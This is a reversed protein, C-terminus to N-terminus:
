KQGFKFKKSLFEIMELAKDLHAKTHLATLSIRLRSLKRPVAPYTIPNVYIGNELLIRASENVKYDDKILIPFIASQSARYDIKLQQLSKKFYAINALLHKRWDPEEDVLQIAKIISAVSQPTAAASFINQRSYYKLLTIMAKNAITYGGVNGFAKSFTGTIFDVKDLLGCDEIIGRGTKGLVGIGHADDVVLYAGHEKCVTYIDNLPAIDGDQSYVGDIVVVRNCYSKTSELVHKLSNIDNHLFHKTNCCLCGDVVSAHTYMDLIAIDKEGLLATLTSSNAAYGSTYTIAYENRLFHSIANELKEHEQNQGGILPSAGAGAGYKQLAKIGAEIVQPHQSFGLYDNSVFSIVDQEQRTYPNIINMMAGSGSLSVVRYPLHEVRHRYSIYEDVLEAREQIDQGRNEFDKLTKNEFPHKM